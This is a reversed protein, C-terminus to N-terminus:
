LSELKEKFRALIQQGKSDPHFSLETDSVYVYDQPKIRGKQYWGSVWNLIPALLTIEWIIEFFRQWRSKKFGFFHNSQEFVPDQLFDKVWQNRKYFRTFFRNGFVPLFSSYLMATYVNRDRTIDVNEDIYHNLCFRNQTHQDYRRQGFLQLYLTVLMRALWIRNKAAIIFLDIDSEERSNLIAQSGSIAVGRVFPFFRLPYLIRRAKRFRTLSIRYRKRRQAPLHPSESLFYFVGDTKIRSLLEGELAAKIQGLTVERFDGRLLYAKIEMLTLPLGQVNFFTLTKLISNCLESM